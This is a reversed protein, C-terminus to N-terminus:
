WRGQLDKVRNGSIGRNVFEIRDEPYKSGYAAAIMMPYGSGLGIPDQLRGCDTVSDGQFLVITGNM